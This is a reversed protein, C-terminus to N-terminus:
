TQLFPAFFADLVKAIAFAIGVGFFLKSTDQILEAFSILCSDIDYDRGMANNALKFTWIFHSGIVAILQLQPILGAIMASCQEFFPSVAYQEGIVLFDHRFDVALIFDLAPPTHHIGSM